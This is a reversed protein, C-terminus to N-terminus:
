STRGRDDYWGTSQFAYTTMTGSDLANYVRASTDTRVLLDYLVASAVASNVYIRHAHANGPATAGLAPDWHRDVNMAASGSDTVSITVEVLAKIGTPTRCTRLTPTTSITSFDNTPAKWQFHDGNQVFGLVAASSRVIAGIRRKYDYGSPMTPATPSLSALVDVVGTDSRKILFLHWTADSIAGTDRMGANTGVAWAADLQKTLGSALRMHQANTSDIAAGAAIDIDNTADVGNNSLTLGWLYGPILAPVASGARGITKFASGDCFITCSEGPQLVCSQLGDITETSNADITIVGIGDNRYEM